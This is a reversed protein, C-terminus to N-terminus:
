GRCGGQGPGAADRALYVALAGLLSFATTVLVAVNWRNMLAAAGGAPGAPTLIETVITVGVAAGLYRATNNAGSGMASRDAPVSAVAQRGLVANLVGGAVGAVFLGPLLRGMSSGPDIWGLALQGAACGTLGAILLARPPVRAPVWRAAYATLVTMGSWALLVVASALASAGMARELLTPVLSILSLVGSGTALAAATAEVFDGRRFLGLALMPDQIRCQVAFFGTLLVVGAILLVITAPRVWGVRGETLGALMSAIGLGLLVTGAVDIRRPEAARSEPLARGVVALVAAGLATVLYPLRWGGLMGLWASLVPGAAVGAGLAAAWVGTARSREAATPFAHGVMGLACSVIAAAGLGQLLRAIVLLVVTPALAGLVSSGALMLMGALFMRRRGYDDGIVGSGLLGAAAGVSMGSLIWAQGGPGAGLDGATGPLTVLPVTFTALVLLTGASAVALTLGPDPRRASGLVDTM